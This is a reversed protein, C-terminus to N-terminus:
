SRSCHEKIVVTLEQVTKNLRFLSMSSSSLQRSCHLEISGRTAETDGRKDESQTTDFKIQIALHVLSSLGSRKNHWTSSFSFSQRGTETYRAQSSM